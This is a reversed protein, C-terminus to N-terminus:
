RRRSRLSVENIRKQVKQIWVSDMSLTRIGIGLLFPIMRSDCAIDGCISLDVEQKEAADAIRKLARLVAPHYPLYLDAIQENTRDVALIYQVLDNSGICLFDAEQALEDAIEVASPLEIMVGLEPNGCHAIGESQLSQSCEAVAEKAQVFEDVSSILPFMIRIAAPAQASCPAFNNFLFTRTVFRFVFQACALFHTPKM